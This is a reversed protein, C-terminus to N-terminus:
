NLRSQQRPALSSIRVVARRRVHPKDGGLRDLRFLWQAHASSLWDNAPLTVAIRGFRHGLVVRGDVM